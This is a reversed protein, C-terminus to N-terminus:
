RNTRRIKTTVIQSPGLPRVTREKMDFCFRCKACADDHDAGGEITAPCVQANTSEASWEARGSMHHEAFAVRADAPIIEDDFQQVYAIFFQPGKEAVIARANAAREKYMSADLSLMVHLNHRVNLGGALDFRRSSVWLSLQPAVDALTNIFRVSGPQLDGVGFVRLFNQKKQVDNAIVLAEQEVVSADATALFNFRSFNEAQRKLAAPMAIRSELGYCYSQCARTPRCTYAIAVNISFGTKSNNSLFLAPPTYLPEPTKDRLVKFAKSM